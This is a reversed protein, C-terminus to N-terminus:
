PTGAPESFALQGIHDRVQIRYEYNMGPDPPVDQAVITGAPLWDAAVRWPDGEGLRRELRPVLFPDDSQWTVTVTTHSNDWAPVTVIPAKPKPQQARGLVATSPQSVNGGGGRQDVSDPRDVAVVRYWYYVLGRVPEDTWIVEALRAAPDPDAAVVAVQTM